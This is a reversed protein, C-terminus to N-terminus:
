DWFDKKKRSRRNPTLWPLGVEKRDSRRRSSSRTASDSPNLCGLILFIVLIIILWGM